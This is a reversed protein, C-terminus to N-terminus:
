NVKSSPVKVVHGPGADFIITFTGKPKKFTFESNKDMVGKVLVTGKDNEVRIEVGKASSGDSFGGECTITGDENNWCLLLPSHAFLVGATAIFICIFFVIHKKM